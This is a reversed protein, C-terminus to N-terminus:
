PLPLLCVGIQKQIKGMKAPDQDKKLEGKLRQVEAKVDLIQLQLRAQIKAHQSLTTAAM